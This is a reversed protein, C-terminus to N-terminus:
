PRRHAGAWRVGRLWAPPYHSSPNRLAPVDDANLFPVRGEQAPPCNLTPSESAVDSASLEFTATVGNVDVTYTGAPLGRVELPVTEEFPVVAQTCVMDARRETFVDVSIFNAQRTQAIQSIKTCGDPLNGRV